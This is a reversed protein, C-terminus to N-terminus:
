PLSVPPETVSVFSLDGFGVRLFAKANTPGLLLRFHVLQLRKM